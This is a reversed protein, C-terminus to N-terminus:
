QANGQAGQLAWIPLQLQKEIRLLLALLLQLLTFISNALPEAKQGQGTSLFQHQQPLQFVVPM